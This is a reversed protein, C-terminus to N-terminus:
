RPPPPTWVVGNRGSGAGVRGVVQGSNTISFAESVNEGVEGSLGLDMIQGNRWLVAHTSSALYVNGVIEGRENIATAESRAGPELTGLWTVVGDEWVFAEGLGGHSAVGVIQGHENVDTAQGYSDLLEDPTGHNWVTPLWMGTNPRPAQGVVVGRNNIAWAFGPGDGLYQREGDRWMCPRILPDTRVYGVVVGLDNIDTAAGVGLPTLVGDRWHFATEQILGPPEGGVVEGRANVARAQSQGAFAAGIHLTDGTRLNVMMAVLGAAVRRSGVAWGAENMDRLTGSVTAGGEPRTRVYPIGTTSLHQPFASANPAVYYSPTIPPQTPGHDGCGAIWTASMVTTLAVLVVKAGAGWRNAGADWSM